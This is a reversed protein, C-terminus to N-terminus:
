NDKSQYKHGVFNGFVEQIFFLISNDSEPLFYYLLLVFEKQPLWGFINNLEIHFKLLSRFIWKVNKLLVSPERMLFENFFFVKKTNMGIMNKILFLTNKSM